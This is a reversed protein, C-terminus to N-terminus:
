QTPQYLNERHLESSVVFYEKEMLHLMDAATWQCNFYFTNGKGPKDYFRCPLDAAGSTLELLNMAQGSKIELMMIRWWGNFECNGLIDNRMNLVFLNKNLRRLFANQGLDICTTDYKLCILTDNDTRCSYGKKLFGEETVEYVMNGNLLYNDITDVPTKLSDYNITQLSQYSHPYIYDGTASLQPWAGKVMKFEDKQIMLVNKKSVLYFDNSSDIYWTGQFEGPFVIINEKDVPQPVSFNYFDCSSFLISTILFIILGYVPKLLKYTKM